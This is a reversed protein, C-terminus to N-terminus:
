KKNGKPESIVEPEIEEKDGTEVEPEIEEYGNRIYLSFLNSNTVEVIDKTENNIFKM